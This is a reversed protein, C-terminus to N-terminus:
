DDLMGIATLILVFVWWAIGWVVAALLAYLFGNEVWVVIVRIIVALLSAGFLLKGLVLWIDGIVDGVGEFFDEYDFTFIWLFVSLLLLWGLHPERDGRSSDPATQSPRETRHEDYLHVPAPQPVPRSEPRPAPRPVPQPVPRPAPRAQPAPEAPAPAVEEHPQAKPEPQEAAVRKKRVKGLIEGTTMNIRTGDSLTIIHNAM